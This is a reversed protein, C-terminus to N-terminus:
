EDPLIRLRRPPPSLPVDVAPGKEDDVRTTPPVYWSVVDAAGGGGEGGGGTTVLEPLIDPGADFVLTPM